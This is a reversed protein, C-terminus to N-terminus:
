NWRCILMANAYRPENIHEQIGINSVRLKPDIQRTLRSTNRGLAILQDDGPAMAKSDRKKCAKARSRSAMATEASCVEFQATRTEVDRKQNM